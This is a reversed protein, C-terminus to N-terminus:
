SKLSMLDLGLDPEVSLLSDAQSETDGMQREGKEGLSEGDRLIFLYVNLFLFIFFLIFYVFQDQVNFSVILFIFCFGYPVFNQCIVYSM